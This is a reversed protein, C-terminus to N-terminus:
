SFKRPYLLAGPTVQVKSFIFLCQTDGIGSVNVSALYHRSFSNLFAEITSYWYAHPMCARIRSHHYWFCYQLKIPYLYLPVVRYLWVVDYRVRFSRSFHGNNYLDTQYVFKMHFNSCPLCVPTCFLSVDRPNHARNEFFIDDFRTCCSNKM